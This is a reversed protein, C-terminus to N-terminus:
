GQLTHRLLQEVPAINALFEPPLGHRQLLYEASNLSVLVEGPQAETVLAKLPLDLASLPCANMLPTGAKPNGFLLLVVPPMQLGVAAAEAQQDIVAFLKINKAQLAAKIREVTASFPHPSPITVIGHDGAGPAEIPPM